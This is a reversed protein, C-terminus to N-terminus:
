MEGKTVEADNLDLSRSRMTASDHWLMKARRRDSPHNRRCHQCRAALAGGRLSEDNSRVVSKTHRGPLHRLGASHCGEDKLVAAKLGHPAITRGASAVREAWALEEHPDHCSGLGDDRLRKATRDDIKLLPGSRKRSHIGVPDVDEGRAGAHDRPREQAAGDRMFDAMHTKSGRTVRRPSQHAREPGVPLQLARHCRIPRERRFVDRSNTAPQGGSTAAPTGYNCLSDRNPGCFVGTSGVGALLHAVINVM